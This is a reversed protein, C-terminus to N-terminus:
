GIWAPNEAPPLPPGHKLTGECDYIEINSPMHFGLKVERLSCARLSDVYQGTPSPPPISKQRERVEGVDERYSVRVM